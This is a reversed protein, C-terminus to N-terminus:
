EFIVELELDWAWWLSETGDDWRILCHNERSKDVSIVTGKKTKMKNWVRILPKVDDNKM